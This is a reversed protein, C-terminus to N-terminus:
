EAIQHQLKCTHFALSCCLQSSTTVLFRPPPPEGGEEGLVTRATKPMRRKPQNQGNVNDRFAQEDNGFEVIPKRGVRM